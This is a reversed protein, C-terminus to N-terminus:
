HVTDTAPAMFVSKDWEFEARYELMRWPYGTAKSITNCMKILHPINELNATYTIIPIDGSTKYALPMEIMEGTDPDPLSFIGIWFLPGIDNELDVITSNINTTKVTSQKELTGGKILLEEQNSFGPLAKLAPMERIAKVLTKALEIIKDM